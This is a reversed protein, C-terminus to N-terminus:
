IKSLFFGNTFPHDKMPKTHLLKHELADDNWVGHFVCSGYCDKTCTGFRVLKNM